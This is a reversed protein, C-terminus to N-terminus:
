IDVEVVLKESTGTGYNDEVDDERMPERIETKYKIRCEM